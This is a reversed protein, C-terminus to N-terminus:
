GAVSQQLLETRTRQLRALAAVSITAWVTNLVVFPWSGHYSANLILAASGLLNLSQFLRGNSIWSMSFATYAGLTAFAGVWGSLDALAMLM